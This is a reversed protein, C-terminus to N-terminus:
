KVKNISTPFKCKVNAARKLVESDSLDLLISVDFAPSTPPPKNPVRPDIALSMKESIPDKAEVDIGTYSKEFLKAQNITTPFGEM